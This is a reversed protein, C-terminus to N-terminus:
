FRSRLAESFGKVMTERYAMEPRQGKLTVGAVAGTELVETLQDSNRAFSDDILSATTDIWFLSDALTIDDKQLRLSLKMLPDLTDKLFIAFTILNRDTLMKYFGEAKPNEHSATSLHMEYAKFTKLLSTIGQTLHPLWRTGTVRPPLVGKVSSADMASLLGKKNKYQKKYFYHLGVLLTMLKDYLKSGKVVDRFSLELRHCLCHINVMEPNVDQRLLTALGTKSGVMNSAGDSGMGVLKGKDIGYGDLAEMVFVQLDASCTSKPSGICLFREIIRGKAASRVYLSEQEDGAIDTSGDMLFSFFPAEKLISLTKDTTTGSIASLFDLAAKENLYTDGLDLGKAKDVKCLWTYDTLPRNNKAVAHINRFLYALRHREASKMSMLAHGAPSHLVEECSSSKSKYYSDAKLHSKSNEHDTVASIKRNTCGSIFTNNGRLNSPDSVKGEFYSICISCKMTDNDSFVLWSRGIKWKENLKREPRNQEYKKSKSKVDEATPNTKRKLGPKAGDFYKLNSLM